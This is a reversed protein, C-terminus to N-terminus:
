IEKLLKIMDLVASAAERGKNYADDSSRKVAQEDSYCTLVGYSVPIEFEV